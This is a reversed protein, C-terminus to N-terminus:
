IGVWETQEGTENFKKEMEAVFKDAKRLIGPVKKVDNPHMSSLVHQSPEYSPEHIRRFAIIDLLAGRNTRKRTWGNEFAVKLATRRNTGPLNLGTKCHYALGLEVTILQAMYM